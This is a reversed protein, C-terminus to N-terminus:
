LPAPGFPPGHVGTATPRNPLNVFIVRYITLLAAVVATPSLGSFSEPSQVPLPTGHAGKAPLPFVLDLPDMLGLDHFGYLKQITRGLLIGLYGRIM